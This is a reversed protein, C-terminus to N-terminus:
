GALRELARAVLARPAHVGAEPRALGALLVFRVGRRYKKDHRWAAELAGIDYSGEVPLGLAELPRRHADVVEGDVRGLEEALYAAAMMGLAVAEGHRIGTFGSAREIAHGFTHGYNLHARRGLEREDDGVVAAKIGVSREVVAALVVPDAALIAGAETAAVDLLSPDAILGYKVVEAMGARLEARPLTALLDVDCLVARPQHFTGVLNKGQALNVGTKGGVAADVQALLTTPVHILAVGRHYTSAVFGAVDCV